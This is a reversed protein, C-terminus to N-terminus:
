AEITHNERSTALSRAYEIAEDLTMASGEALAIEVAEEGIQKRAVETADVQPRSMLAGTVGTEERLAAAAGAMRVAEAHRGESSEFTSGLELSAAIGPLNRAETVLGLTERYATWAKHRHGLMHYAFALESIAWVLQHRDEGERFSAAARELLPLAARVDGAQVLAVGLAHENKAILDARGVERALALSENFLRVAADLDRRMVPVFALNYLAGAEAERDGLERSLRAAAEYSAQATVADSLWYALGGLAEHAKATAAPDAAPQLGLLESLWARGERLYGRQYWFRWLAAALQLGDDAYHDDVARRLAVRVNDHEREFRDLWRAQDAGLFQREGM